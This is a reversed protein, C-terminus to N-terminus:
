CPSSWLLNRSAAGSLIFKPIVWAQLFTSFQLLKPTCHQVKWQWSANRGDKGCIWLKISVILLEEIKSPDPYFPHRNAEISDMRGRHRWGFSTMWQARSERAEQKRAEKLTNKALTM